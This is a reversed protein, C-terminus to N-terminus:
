QVTCHAHILFPVTHLHPTLTQGADTSPLMLFRQLNCLRQRVTLM